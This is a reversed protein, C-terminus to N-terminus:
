AADETQKKDIEFEEMSHGNKLAEEMWRPKRGRGSWTDAPNEPNAYKPPAPARKTKSKTGGTLDSLSFGLQRAQEELAERAEAKKREEYSTVAKSVEKQLVRLEDLDMNELDKSIDKAKAM